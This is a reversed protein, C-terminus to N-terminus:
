DHAKWNSYGDGHMDGDGYAAGHADSEENGVTHCNVGGYVVGHFRGSISFCHTALTSTFTLPTPLFSSSVRLRPSWSLSPVAPVIHNTFSVSVPFRVSPSVVVLAAALLFRM